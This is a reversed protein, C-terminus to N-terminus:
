SFAVSGENLVVLYRSASLGFVILTELQANFTAIAHSGDWTGSSLTVTHGATGADKQTIVLLKGEVPAAIVAEIKPTTKNLEVYSVKNPDITAAGGSTIEQIVGKLFNGAKIFKEVEQSAITKVVPIYEASEDEFTTVEDDPAILKGGIPYLKQRDSM